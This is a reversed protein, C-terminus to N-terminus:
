SADTDIGRARGCPALMEYLRGVVVDHRESAAPMAYRRGAVFEHPEGSTREGALYQDFGTSDTRV